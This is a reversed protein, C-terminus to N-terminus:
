KRLRGRGGHSDRKGPKGLVDRQPHRRCLQGVAKGHGSQLRRVVGAGAASPVVDDDATDQVHVRVGVGVPEPQGVHVRAALRGGDDAARRVNGCPLLDRERPHARHERAALRALRHFQRCGDYAADLGRAHDAGLAFEPQAVLVLADEHQRILARDASGENVYERRGARQLDFDGRVAAVAEGHEADGVFRSGDGAFLYGLRRGSVVLVAARYRVADADLDGVGGEARAVGARQHATHPDARGRVPQALPQLVRAVAGDVVDHVHGVVDHQLVALRQVREVEVLHPIRLDDDTGGPVAFAERAEVALLVFQTRGHQHDRVGLTRYPEGTHHAARVGLHRVGRPVHQQLGRREVGDVRPAGGVRQFQARVGREAELLPQVRFQSDPRYAARRAEDQLRRAALGCLADVVDEGAPAVRGTDREGM